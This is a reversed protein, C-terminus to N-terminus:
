LLGGSFTQANPGQELQKLDECIVNSIDYPNVEEALKMFLYKGELSVLPFILFNEGNIVFRMKAIQMYGEMMKSLNFM